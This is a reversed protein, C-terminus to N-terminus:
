SLGAPILNRSADASKTLASGYYWTSASSADESPSLMAGKTGPHCDVLSYGMPFVSLEYFWDFGFGGLHKNLKSYNLKGIFYTQM